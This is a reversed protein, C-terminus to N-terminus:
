CAKATAAITTKYKEMINYQNMSIKILKTNFSTAKIVQAIMRGINKV